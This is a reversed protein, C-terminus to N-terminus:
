YQRLTFIFTVCYMYWVICDELNIYIDNLITKFCIYIGDLVIELHIFIDCLVYRMNDLVIKLTLTFTMCNADQQVRNITTMTYMITWLLM